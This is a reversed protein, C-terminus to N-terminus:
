DVDALVGARKMLAEMVKRGGELSFRAQAYRSAAQSLRTWLAGDFHVRSIVDVWQQPTEVIASVGLEGPSLFGEAAVPSAITPLGAALAAAVKGKLGAGFRLPAVFLLCEDFARWLDPVFGEILVDDGALRSVDPGLDAGYVRLRVGPVRQRLLPMVQAVFWKVADVNPAHSFGGLFMLDRRQHFAKPLRRSRPREVVWPLTGVPVRGRLEGQILTAEEATYTLVMDMLSMVGFERARIQQAHLALQADGRVEAERQLRLHHCDALNLVLKAFPAHRRVWPAVVEAVHFRTAYVLSLGSGNEVLHDLVAQGAGHWPTGRSRWEDVQRPDPEAAGLTGLGLKLGLSHLLSIELAAAHGGGTRHPEPLATDLFLAQGPAMLPRSGTSRRGPPADSASRGVGLRRLFDGIPQFLGDRYAAASEDITVGPGTPPADIAELLGAESAHVRVPLALRRAERSLWSEGVLSLPVGAAAAQWLLGSSSDEYADPRYNLVLLHAQDLLTHLAAESLYGETLRFRQHRAALQRLAQAAADIQPSRLGDELTFHVRILRSSRKLASEVLSPLQLFGKAAKADGLYLLAPSGEHVVRERAQAVWRPADFHFVPHIQVQKGLDCFGAYARLHEDCSAFFRVDGRAKLADLAVRYNLLRRPFRVRGDGGVGPNFMLFVVHLVKGPAEAEQGLAHALAHLHMWDVTHHLVMVQADSAIACAAQHLRRQEASIQRVADVCSSLAADHFADDYLYRSFHPRLSINAASLLSIVEPDADAHCFIEVRQADSALSLTLAAAPHHGSPSKLGPDSIM